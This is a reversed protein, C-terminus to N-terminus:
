ANQRHREFGLEPGPTTCSYSLDIRCFFLSMEDKEEGGDAAPRFLVACGSSRREDEGEGTGIRAGLSM